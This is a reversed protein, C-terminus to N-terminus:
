KAQLRGELRRKVLLLEREDFRELAALFAELPIKLEILPELSLANKRLMDKVRDADAIADDASMLRANPEHVTKENMM